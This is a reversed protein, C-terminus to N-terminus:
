WILKGANNPVIHLCGYSQGQEPVAFSNNIM